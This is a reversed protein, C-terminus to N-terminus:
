ARSDHKRNPLRLSGSEATACTGPIRAGATTKRSIYRRLRELGCLLKIRELAVSAVVSLFLLEVFMLLPNGSWYILDAWYYCYIFTHSLFINFSHRGIFVLAKRLFALKSLFEYGFVIITLGFLSDLHGAMLVPGYQRQLALGLLLVVYLICKWWRRASLIGALKMFGKRQSLYIGLGFAVTHLTLGHMPFPGVPQIVEFGVMLVAGFAVVLFWHGLAGILKKMVPFLLYLALIASMFWWTENYSPTNLFWQVGALNLAMGVWAHAPPGYISGIGREKFLVGIPVFVAWIFWYNLYLHSLRKVYFKQLPLPQRLDSESLGYGSLILFMAVCVSAAHALRWVV